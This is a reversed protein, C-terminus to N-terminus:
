NFFVMTLFILFYAVRQYFIDSVHIAIKLEEPPLSNKLYSALIDVHIQELTKAESLFKKNGL